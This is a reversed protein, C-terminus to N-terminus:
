TVIHTLNGPVRVWTHRPIVLVTWVTCKMARFKRTIRLALALTIQSFFIPLSAALRMSTHLAVSQATPPPAKM